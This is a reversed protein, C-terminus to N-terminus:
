KVRDLYGQAIMQVKFAAGRGVIYLTRKDSGAFALNQPNRGGPIGVPITGLHQGQPSFVDVGGNATTYVRGQSDVALGDAGSSIGNETRRVGIYTAFNRRNQLTSDPQIDYALLHEGASDNVYLTHEDRSLQIGNPRNINDAVKIVNGTPAAYYVSQPGPDTYYVGGKKDLVLDNLREFPQGDIADALVAESGEPYIIAIRTFGPARQVAILRGMPDFALGNAEKSDELFVSTRGDPEIKIIRSASNETFLLGGDPHAIPGETGVFDDQILEITVGAAIVGPIRNAVTDTAPTDQQAHVLPAVCFLLGWALGHTAQSQM